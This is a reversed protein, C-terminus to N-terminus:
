SGVNGVGVGDGPFFIGFIEESSPLRLLMFEEPFNSCTPGTQSVFCIAIQKGNEKLWVISELEKLEM